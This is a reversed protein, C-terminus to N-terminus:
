AARERRSDGIDGGEGDEEEDSAPWQADEQPSAAQKGKSATASSSDKSVPEDGPASFVVEAPARKAAAATAAQSPPPAGRSASPVMPQSATQGGASPSSAVRHDLAKLAMARRREAEARASVPAAGANAGAGGNLGYELDSANVYDYQFAPILKLRLFIGHLTNSIFTVPTHLFPPFWNVLCFAESRDGRTGSDPNWRYFRLYAWSILWGFQILIFPSPYGVLCAVNSFTVYLMPLDRVRISVRGKLLQVQHDPILQAFAVLFGTQLAELGHYQTGYFAAESRLVAFIVFAIFWAIVNSLVVIILTFRVLEVPGWIRELYRGALPLSIATVIFELFSTECFAATVLTWPYWFSVGPVIVLWPFAIASDARTFTIVHLGEETRFLRLLAVLASFCLVLLSLIRTAIPISAISSALNVVAM